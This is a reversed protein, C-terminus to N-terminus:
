RVELIGPFCFSLLDLCKLPWKKISSLFILGLLLSFQSVSPSASPSSPFPTLLSRLSRLVGLASAVG